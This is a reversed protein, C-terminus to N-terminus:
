VQGAISCGQGLDTDTGSDSSDFQRFLLKRADSFRYAIKTEPTYRASKPLPKVPELPSIPEVGHSQEEFSIKEERGYNVAFDEFDVSKYTGRVFEKAITGDGYWKTLIGTYPIDM